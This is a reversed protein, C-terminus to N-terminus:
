KKKLLKRMQNNKNHEPLTQAFIHGGREDAVFYLYQHEAPSFSALISAKGPCAISAPPLTKRTYTNYDSDVKLDARTLERDIIGRGNSMKYIITPDAQLPMGIKLRNFYVGAVIPKEQDLRTEKEVISAITLIDSTSVSVTSNSELDSVLKSLTAKMRKVLFDKTDGYYYYYTEPLINCEFLQEDIRGLLGPANNIIDIAVMITVGEPITIKRIVRQGRTIKTLVEYTNLGPSFNYEGGILYSGRLELLKAALTFAYKNHIVADAELQSAFRITSTGAPFYLTKDVPVKYIFLSYSLYIVSSILIILTINLFFIAISKTKSM